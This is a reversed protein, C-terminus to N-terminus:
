VKWIRFEDYNRMYPKILKWAELSYIGAAIHRKDANPLFNVSANDFHKSSVVLNDFEFEPEKGDIFAFALECCASSIDYPVTTQEGRPFENEQSFSVKEGKYALRDIARTAMTISIQQDNADADNWIDRNLHTANIYASADSITVYNM